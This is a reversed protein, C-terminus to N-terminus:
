SITNDPSALINDLALLLFRVAIVAFSYPLITQFFWVPINLFLVSNGEMEFRVFDWASWALIASIISTALHTIVRLKPKWLRPLVNPLFDIGIHKGKSVALSAGLFGVWLVLQRLFIDAWLIGQQFFNRLIVQSFSLLIMITLLLVLFYEEFKEL